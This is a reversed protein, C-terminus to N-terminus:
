ISRSKRRGLVTRLLLMYAGGGAAASVALVVAPSVGYSYAASRVLLATGGFMAGCYAVRLFPAATIHVGSAATYRRLALVLMFIYCLTTSLAAGDVGMVPILLLNGAAKAATGALMIRLPASTKGVAQLMGFLPYSLCLCVMGAMLFRLASICVAVEDSQRPFLVGLIEPALVATGVAAPVSIVAATLLAQVSGEELTCRDGQRCAATMCTLAGKGLMNTVSPVLNFVTLAIGAYSGYIFRPLEAASVGAPAIAGGYRSICVMVTWMDTLSALNTVLASLGVPLATSVLERAISRGSMLFDEGSDPIRASLRVAGFFLAAGATSLTVGLIGAAAAAARIDTVFPFLEMVKRPHETVFSCLALGAAAKVAGEALQSLATPYMNSMGEYYGREVATICGFFVAPAIMAVAASADTSGLTYRSFPEALLFVLLSGALGVASFMILATRRIRRCNAYMGLAASGATMRAVASSLGTVTLAYVPMFLSYACSFYSMGIGGLINTLPIRFVAGLLKAAAASVMLIISGKIFNQKKLM